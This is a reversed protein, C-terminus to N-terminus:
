PAAPRPPPITDSASALTMGPRTRLFLGDQYDFPKRTEPDVIGGTYERLRGDGLIGTFAALRQIATDVAANRVKWARSWVVAEAYFKVMPRDALALLQDRATRWLERRSQKLADVKELLNPNGSREAVEFLQLERDTFLRLAPPRAFYLGTRCGDYLSGQRARAAISWPRSGYATIIQQLEDFHGEAKKLDDEYAQRVKDIVGEYRHHGTEYGFSAKLKDDLLRYACEAALDAEPTGLATSHGEVVPASARLKDFASMANKCSETARPDRGARRLRAAEAAARVVHAAAAPDGKNAAHYGDMSAIAELRRARNQGEDLGREDWAALDAAAVLYDIEAKQAAPPSMSLLTARAATMKKRDGLHAYLLAADHAAERRGPEAFRANGAVADFSEAARRYDFLLVHAASLAKHARELFGVREAYRKPDPARPPSVAADGSQLRRLIQEDGYQRIFREYMGIAKDYDGVQKYAHAGNIAAEPAADDAPAKELAAQYLAAATRWKAAREPGDPMKQAKEFATKADDFDSTVITGDAIRKEVAADAENTACSKTLAAHALARSREADHELNAMTILRIWAKLGYETKRCQGEYIPQLRKRAGDLQGYLFHFDAAQYAYLDANGGRPVRQIYEDRATIADLVERPLPDTVVREAGLGTTKIRDRPELGDAGKSRRFAQYRENLVQQAVDVVFQAAAEQYRDDENSDRVAIATRRAADVEAAGPRRGLAVEAVVIGHSAHALWYRREYAESPDEDRAPPSGWAQAALRYEDLARTLLPERSAADGTAAAQNMLAIGANTHDAAARRLGGRALREAAQIAEADNKNADVWPTAGVYASLRTRAELARASTEARATTGERSLAALKEYADAIAAQMSPADRHMPWKELIRKRVEVANHHQGLDTFEHALAAYIAITWRENQPILRPDQVRDAAVRMKQEAARADSETDLVDSRPSFPADPAPGTFDLYTLSGAIFTVAEARFDAGPDGTTKEQADALRLLDVFARVSAEYRQQKFYTWALKYMAVAHVPPKKFALAHKYAAEARNFNFPGGAPDVENFAHDGILWWVEALYRPEAGAASTEPIPRCEDPFPNKFSGEDDAAARKKGAADRRSRWGIWFDREHDQPLAGVLDREPAKPDPRMAVPYRDHCVLSRWVQQAEPVRGSDNYAHGLYYHIGALERYQPFEKIVRRYLAIAPKLGASLEESSDGDTRAREEYLAALRFMADPTSEPHANTGAHSALFAELKRIAAERADRLGKKEINIETDLAALVRRRRDEYHHQVIRTIVGRYDRAAKEYADAEKQLEGLAAVQAPTPAARPAGALTLALGAVAIAAGRRHLGSGKGFRKREV